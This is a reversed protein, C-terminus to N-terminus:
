FLGNPPFLTKARVFVVILGVIQAILAAALLGTVVDNQAKQVIPEGQMRSM